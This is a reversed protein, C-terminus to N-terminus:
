QLHNGKSSSANQSARAVMYEHPKADIATQLKHCIPKGPQCKIHKTLKIFFQDSIKTTKQSLKQFILM